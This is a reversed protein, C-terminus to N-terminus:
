FTLKFSKRLQDDKSINDAVILRMEQDSLGFFDKLLETEAQCDFPYVWVSKQLPYFGLEKLKGRFAERYTKKLQAIDFIVIRWKKDWKKPKKITLADIQFVGAKKKGEKTLSIYIQRNRKGINIYGKKRLMYFTDYVKRKPYKQWKKYGTLLNRIFYPSSAAIYVAGAILLWSFIDKSIESKPKKFYYKYKGIGMEGNYRRVMAM